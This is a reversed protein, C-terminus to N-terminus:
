NGAAHSLEYGSSGLYNVYIFFYFFSLPIKKSLLRKPLLPLLLLLCVALSFRHYYKKYIRRLISDLEEDKRYELFKDMHTGVLL